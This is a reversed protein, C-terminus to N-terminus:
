ISRDIKENPPWEMIERNLFKMNPNTEKILAEKKARNWKKLEKEKAIADEALAFREFWLLYHCYYRGAFTKQEGRNQYHETLRIELDNTIGIYLTKRRINTIIYCFYQKM